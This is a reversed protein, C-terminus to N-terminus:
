LSNAGSFAFNGQDTAFEPLVMSVETHGKQTQAAWGMALRVRETRGGGQLAIAEQRLASLKHLDAILMADSENPGLGLVDADHTVLGGGPVGHPDTLWDVTEKHMQWTSQLAHPVGAPDTLCKGSSIHMRWGTQKRNQLALTAMLTTLRGEAQKELGVNVYM